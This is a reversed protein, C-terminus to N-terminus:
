EKSQNGTIMQSNSLNLNNSSVKLRASSLKKTLNVM